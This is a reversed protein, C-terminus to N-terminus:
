GRSLWSSPNVPKSQYRLEFYLGTQPIGGSNGVSAINEGMKVSEGEQKYLSEANAYLSMFGSGHDVIILNGFGRMWDAFVVRGAAVAKVPTGEKARIFLGKWPIGTDERPSGFRGALEGKVPFPLRGKYQQFASGSTDPEALKVEPASRGPSRPEPASRRSKVAARSQRELREMLQTLRQEDQQLRSIEKRQSDIQQSLKSLVAAREKKSDLLVQRQKTQETKVQALEDQKAQTSATVTELTDLNRRMKTLLEAQARYLYAYYRLNRLAQNPDQQNLLIKFADQQGGSAYQQRLLRALMDKQQGIASRTKGSQQRLQDLRQQIDGEQRDLDRLKRNTNSIAQESQRLADAAEKHSAQTSKMEKKLAGIRERVDKLESKPSTAALCPAALLMLLGYGLLRNM